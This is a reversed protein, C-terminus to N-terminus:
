HKDEVKKSAEWARRQKELFYELDSSPSDVEEISLIEAKYLDTFASEIPKIKIKDHTAFEYLWVVNDKTTKCYATVGACIILSSFNIKAEEREFNSLGEMYSTNRRISVNFYRM